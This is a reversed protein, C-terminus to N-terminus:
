DAPSKEGTTTSPGVTANPRVVTASFKATLQMGEITSLHKPWEEIPVALLVWVGETPRDVTMPVITKEEEHEGGLLADLEQDSFFPSMDLGADVDAQIQDLNWESLDSTRNDYMAMRRKQEPTLNRRRVAVIADGEADVVHLKTIGVQGAAEIVGHGGILQNQEDIIISLGAGVDQLSDAIMGVNRPTHARRNVPDETLDKIHTPNVPPDPM